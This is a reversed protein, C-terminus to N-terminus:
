EDSNYRHRRRSDCNRSIYRVRRSRRVRPRRSGISANSRRATRSRIRRSAGARTAAAAPRRRDGGRRALGEEVDGPELVHNANIRTIRGSARSAIPRCSWRSRCATAEPGDAGGQAARVKDATGLLNQVHHGVEHGIVYAQAFDGPGGLRALDAFFATDLYCAAIPRAISRDRGRRRTAAPRSCPATSCRSSPLKTVGAPPSRLDRGLRGRHQRPDRGRVPECRRQGHARRAKSATPAGGDGGELLMRERGRARRAFLRRRAVAVGALAGGRSLWIPMGARMGGRGGEGRVDRVNDSRRLDRWRM